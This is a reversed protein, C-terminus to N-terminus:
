VRSPNWAHSSLSSDPDNGGEHAEDGIEVVAGAPMVRHNVQQVAFKIKKGDYKGRVPEPLLAAKGDRDKRGDQKQGLDQYALLNGASVTDIVNKLDRHKDYYGEQYSLELVDPPSM